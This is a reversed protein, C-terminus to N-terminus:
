IKGAYENKDSFLNMKAISTDRKMNGKKSCKANNFKMPLYEHYHIEFSFVHAHKNDNGITGM